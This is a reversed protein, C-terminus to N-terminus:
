PAQTETEPEAATETQEATEEPTQMETEPSTEEVAITDTYSVTESSQEDAQVMGAPVAAMLGISLCAIM